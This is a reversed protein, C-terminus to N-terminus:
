LRLLLYVGFIGIIFIILGVIVVQLMSRIISKKSLPNRGVSIISSRVGGYMLSAAIFSSIIFVFLALYIRIAPVPKGAIAEAASRLFDPLNAESPRQLPNNSVLIDVQIRGISVDKGAVEATSVASSGDFSSVARGIVVPVIDDVKMGVGEISSVTIFDGPSIPGNQTSVLTLYRGSTAVFAQEGDDSLTVTADNPNVIVGYLDKVRQLQAPEIKDPDEDNVVVIVGRELTQDSDFGRVFSQALVTGQASVFVLLALALLAAIRPLRILQRIKTKNM